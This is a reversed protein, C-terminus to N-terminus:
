AAAPPPLLAVVLMCMSTMVFPLDSESTPNFARLFGSGVCVVVAIHFCVYLWIGAEKGSETCTHVLQEIVLTMVYFPVGWRLANFMSVVGRVRGVRLPKRMLVFGVTSTVALTRVASIAYSPLVWCCLVSVLACAATATVTQLGVLYLAAASFDIATDDDDDLGARSTTKSKQMGGRHRSM